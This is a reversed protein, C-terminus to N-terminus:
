EPTVVPPRGNGFDENIADSWRYNAENAPEPRGKARRESLRRKENIVEDIVRGFWETVSNAIQKVQCSEILLWVPPDPQELDVGDIVLYSYGGAASFVFLHGPDVMGHDGGEELCWLAQERIDESMGHVGFVTGPMAAGWRRGLIRLVARLADPIHSVGQAEVMSDIESETAGEVAEPRFGASVARDFTIGVVSAANDGDTM